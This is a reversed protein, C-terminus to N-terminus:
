WIPKPPPLAKSIDIRLINGTTKKKGSGPVSAPTLWKASLYIKGIDIGIEDIVETLKTHPFKGEGRNKVLLFDSNKQNIKVAGITDAIVIPRNVKVVFAKNFEKPKMRKRSTAGTISNTFQVKPTRVGPVPDRSTMTDVVIDLYEGDKGCQVKHGNKWDQTQCSKSCYFVKRCASCFKSPGKAGCWGCSMESLARMRQVETMVSVFKPSSNALMRPTLGTPDALMVDAGAVLLARFTNINNAMIPHMLLSEGFRNTMNADAGYKSLMPVLELSIPSSSFGAATGIPPYGCLDRSNVRVGAELLAECVESFLLMGNEQISETDQDPPVRRAGHCCYHLPSFRMFSIRKELVHLLADEEGDEVKKKAEEITTRVTALDGTACALHFAASGDEAHIARDMDLGTSWANRLPDSAEVAAQGTISPHPVPSQDGDGYPDDMSAMYTKVVAEAAEPAMPKSLDEFNVKQSHSMISDFRKNMDDRLKRGHEQLDEEM